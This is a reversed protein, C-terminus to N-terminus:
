KVKPWRLPTFVKMILRTMHISKGEATTVHVYVHIGTGEQFQVTPQGDQIMHFWCTLVKGFYIHVYGHTDHFYMTFMTHSTYNMYTCTHVNTESETCCTYTYVDGHRYYMYSFEKTDIAMIGHM